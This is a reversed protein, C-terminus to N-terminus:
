LAVKVSADVVKREEMKGYITAEMEGIKRKLKDLIVKSDVPYYFTSIRLSHEFNIIPSLWNPGVFRPYESVFFTRFYYDGMQLTNFDIEMDIPAIIDQTTLGDYKPLNPEKTIAPTSKKSPIFNDLFAFIFNKKKNKEKTENFREKTDLKLESKKTKIQELDKQLDERFSAYKNESSLPTSKKELMEMTKSKYKNEEM